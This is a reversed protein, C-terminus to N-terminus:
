RDHSIHAYLKGQKIRKVKLESQSRQSCYKESFSYKIQVYFGPEVRL